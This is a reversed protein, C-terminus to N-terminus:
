GPQSGALHRVVSQGVALGDDVVKDVFSQVKRANGCLYLWDPQTQHEAGAPITASISGDAELAVGLRRLLDLEPILGVSTILTDCEIIRGDSLEVAAIRTDGIVRTIATNLLLPINNQDLYRRKNRILGGCHEQQEIVAIVEKNLEAFRGAMVLGVDGSGAVVIRDGIDWGNINVMKQAAGATFVGSPRTGVIPLSGIARERCGTAMIVATAKLRQAGDLTALQISHDQAITIVSTQLAAQVGTAVFRELLPRLFEPGDLEGGGDRVGFGAHLCQPLIGGLYPLRDVLLIGDAPMGAEVAGVATALGAAGGGIILLSLYDCDGWSESSGLTQRNRPSMRQRDAAEGPSLGGSQKGPARVGPAQRGTRVPLLGGSQKGSMRQGPASSKIIWSGDRDKKIDEPRVDLEEALIRIIHEACFGGQCRGM